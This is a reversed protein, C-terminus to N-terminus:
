RRLTAKVISWCRRANTPPIRAAANRWPECTEKDVAALGPLGYATLAGLLGFGAPVPRGSNACKFEVYLDLVRVPVPWGLALLCGVEASAYFSVFLTGPDVSWPPPPPRQGELWRTVLRRSFLERAALCLPLPQEGDPQWFEFDLVWVERYYRRLTDM